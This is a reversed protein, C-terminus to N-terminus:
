YWWENSSIGKRIQENKYTKSCLLSRLSTNWKFDFVIGNAKLHFTRQCIGHNYHITSTQLKSATHNDYLMSTVFRSSGLSKVLNTLSGNLKSIRKSVGTPYPIAM